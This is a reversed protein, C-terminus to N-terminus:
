RFEQLRKRLYLYDELKVEEPVGHDCTPIYGGRAKMVPLIRDVMRDIADKGKAMERKDLGGSILLEPYERGTRIVDSGAAVEFPSAMGMGLEGYLDMVPDFFGDTAIHYCVPRHKDLQRMRANTMLQQYYPMLFRRIMDPSILPGHNYCIDEDLLIEDVSVQAQHRAMVSDAMILWQEMCKEILEPDDYFMYLLQEPGILSRLYMYGGVIYQRVVFGKKALAVVKPLAENLKRVREPTDPNLRWLCNEEWTKQDKVPHDIYEPMFGNRRGKFYLVHRGAFDRVLEHAGRDELVEVDFQPEFPAECGGLGGLTAVAPADFGFLESLNADPSLGEERQWKELCYYGFERQYIPAGPKRNMFDWYKQVSPAMQERPLMGHIGDNM